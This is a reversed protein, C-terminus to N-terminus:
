PILTYLAVEDTERNAAILRDKEGDRFYMCNAPGAGQDLIETKYTGDQWSVAILERDEQRNGIFAFEKGGINQGWVAHLFPMRKDLTYVCEFNGDNEKYVSLTDGHFPSLILLECKGDGDYDQYLM